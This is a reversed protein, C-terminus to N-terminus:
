AIWVSEGDDLYIVEDAYGALAHQDSTFFYQAHDRSKGFILPSGNRVALLEDPAERDMILFAYAGHLKPAIARWASMLDSSGEDLHKAVIESDTQGELIIGRSELEEGLARYNEIIGNHVLAFRGTM